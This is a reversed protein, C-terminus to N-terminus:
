RLESPETEPRSFVSARPLTGWTEKDSRQLQINNNILFESQKFDRHQSCVNCVVELKIIQVTGILSFILWLQNNRWGPVRGRVEEM